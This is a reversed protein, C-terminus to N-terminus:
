GGAGLTMEVVQKYRWRLRRSRAGDCGGAGLAMAVEIWM